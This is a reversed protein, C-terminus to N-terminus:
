NNIVEWKPCNYSDIQAQNVPYRGCSFYRYFLSGYSLCRKGRLLPCNIQRCCTNECADCNNKGGKWSGKIRVTTDNYLAPPAYLKVSYMGIFNKDMMLLWLSKYVHKWIVTLLFDKYATDPAFAAKYLPPLIFLSLGFTFYFLIFIFIIYLRVLVYKISSM